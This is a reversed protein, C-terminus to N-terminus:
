FLFCHPQSQLHILRLSFERRYRLVKILECLVSFMVMEVGWASALNRSM